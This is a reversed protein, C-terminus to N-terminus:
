LKFKAISSDLQEALGKLDHAHQVIDQIAANQEQSSAAVEEANGAAQQSVEAVDRIVSEIKESGSMLQDSNKVVELILGKLEAARNNIDAFINGTSEIKDVSNEVAMVNTNMKKVVDEINIRIEKILGTIQDTAKSSDEALERIEDAVVSFGRGAEGARAAEIAANLALLNTQGAINSIMKVIDGIKDSTEGLSKVKQSIVETDDKVQNVQDISASVAENGTKIDNMVDAASKEMKASSENVQRSQNIFLEINDSMQDVQASQEEAGSAVDQIATAVQDSISDMQTGSDALDNSSATVESTVDSITIIMEKLNVIMKKLSNSLVGLEDETKLDLESLDISLDGAAVQETVKNLKVLPKTIYSSVSYALITGILLAVVSMIISNNRISDLGSLIEQTPVSIALSWNAVEIPAFATTYAVKDVMYSGYNSEYNKMKNIIEEFNADDVQELPNTGINAQDVHAVTIGENNIIWGYGKNNLKVDEVLQRLYTLEITAGLVGEVPKNSEDMSYGYIPTAIVIIQNGTAKSIVPQSIVTEKNTLVQQFYSRDSINGGDGETINYDGALDAVFITEIYERNNAVRQLNGQQQMWYMSKMADTNALTVMENQIGELWVETLEAKDKAVTLASEYLNDRFINKSQRYAFFSSAAVLVLIVLSFVLVMKVKMSKIKM